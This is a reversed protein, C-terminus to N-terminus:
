APSPTSKSASCATGARSATTTASTPARSAAAAWRTTPPSRSGAAHRTSKRRSRRRCCIADLRGARIQGRLRLVRHGARDRHRRAGQRGDGRLHAGQRPHLPEVLVMSATHGTRARSSRRRISTTRACSSSASARAKRWRSSSTLGRCCTRRPPRWARHGHSRGAGARRAAKLVTKAIDKQMALASALVGSHSYPIASSRSCARCRATRARAATCCTSRSTRSRARALHRRHRPRRRRPQRPLRRASGARRRLGRRLALSVEREASWGGMLVAVHKSM